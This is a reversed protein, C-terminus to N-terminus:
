PVVGANTDLSVRVLQCRHVRQRREKGGGVPVLPLDPVHVADKEGVVGVQSPDQCVIPELSVGQPFVEWEGSVVLNSLTNSAVSADSVNLTHRHKLDAIVILQLTNNLLRDLQSLFVSLKVQRRGPFLEWGESLGVGGLFFDWQNLLGWGVFLSLSLSM